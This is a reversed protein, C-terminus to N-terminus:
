LNHSNMPINCITEKKYRVHATSYALIDESVGM